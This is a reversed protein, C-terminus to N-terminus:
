YYPYGAIESLIRELDIDLQGALYYTLQSGFIELTM